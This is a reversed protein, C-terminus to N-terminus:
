TGSFVPIIESLVGFVAPHHCLGGSPRHIMSMDYSPDGGRAPDFFAAGLKRDMLLMSLGATLPPFAFLMMTATALMGWTFIPIRLM